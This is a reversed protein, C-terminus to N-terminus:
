KSMEASLPHTHQSPQGEVHGAPSRPATVPTKNFVRGLGEGLSSGLVSGAINGVAGLPTGAIGGALGGLASGVASGRSSAPASSAQYLSYAPLAVNLVTNLATMKPSGPVRPDMQRAIEGHRTFLQGSNLQQWYKKPDGIMVRKVDDLSVAHKTLGFVILAESVGQQHHHTTM